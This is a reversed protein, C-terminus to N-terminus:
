IALESIDTGAAEADKVWQPKRGRGTWTQKPDAPNRYKPPNKRGRVRGGQQIELTLESLKYGHALAAQEAAELAARREREALSVLATDVDARLQELQARSLKDLKYDM